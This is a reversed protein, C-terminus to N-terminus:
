RGAGDTFTVKDDLVTPGTMALAVVVADALPRLEELLEDAGKVVDAVEAVVVEALLADIEDALLVDAETPLVDVEALLVDVEALLVDDMTIVVPAGEEPLPEAGCLAV